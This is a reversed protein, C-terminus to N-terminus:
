FIELFDDFNIILNRMGCLFGFVFFFQKSIM